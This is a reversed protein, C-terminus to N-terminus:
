PTVTVAECNTNVVDSADAAVHDQGPGCGDRDSSASM